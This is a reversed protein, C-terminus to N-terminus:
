SVEVWTNDPNFYVQNDSAHLSYGLVRVFDGSGPATITAIGSDTASLYIPSGIAETGEVETLLTVFGRLLMGDVDPNTGLAVALLGKTSAEADADALTWNTGDIYYIKGKVTSGDGYYYVDGGKYDGVTSSPLAYKRSNIEKIGTFTQAESLHATDADLKASAIVGGSWTGAAITGADTIGADFTVANTINGGTITIDGDIQLNGSEDLNAVETTYNKFSFSQSTEDNDRDITFTMNGDSHIELDSDSGTNTILGATHVVSGDENVTFVVEDAGNKINFSSTEDNDNDLKINVDGDSTILVDADAVGAIGRANTSLTATAANGSTNQNGATNVGPLNIASSGNFSVGGISRSTALITATAALPVNASDINTSGQDTTWDIAENDTIGDLKAEMADLDVPQTISIFDTKVKVVDLDVNQTASLRGLKTKDDIPYSIKSTNAAITLLVDSGLKATTVSSDVINDTTISTTGTAGTAGTAGTGGTQGTAVFKVVSGSASKVNIKVDAM